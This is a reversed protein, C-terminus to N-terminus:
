HYSWWDLEPCVLTRAIKEHFKHNIPHFIRGLIENWFLPYGSGDERRDQPNSAPHRRLEDLKEELVASLRGFWERTLPTNPRFIFAGTGVLLRWDEKLDTGNPGIEPYGVGLLEKDSLLTEFAKNWDCRQIKVDAYGGGYFHMLYTRLYDAKHTASLFPYAPHLPFDPVVYRDINKPTLLRVNVGSRERVDRLCASRAPSMGNDGTWLCFLSRPVINLTDDPRYFFVNLGGNRTSFPLYGMGVLFRGAEEADGEIQVFPGDRRITEAGGRLVPLDSGHTDIKLFDLRKIGLREAEGDLTRCEVPGDDGPVFSVCGSNLGRSVLTGRTDESYLGCSFVRCGHAGNAEMNKKLFRFSEPNIEYGLAESFMGTYPLITTGIHAGADVYVGNKHPFMGFYRRVIAMDRPYPESAGRPINEQFCPDDTEYSRGDYVVRRTM